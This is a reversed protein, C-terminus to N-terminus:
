DTVTAGVQEAGSMWQEIAQVTSLLTADQCLDLQAKDILGYAVCRQANLHQQQYREFAHSFLQKTRPLAAHFQHPYLRLVLAKSRHYPMLLHAAYRDVLPLAMVYQRFSPTMFPDREPLHGAPPIGDSPFIADWADAVAWSRHHKSHFVLSQQVWIRAWEEVPSRLRESLIAPAQITCLEPWNTAWYLWSSWRAPLLFAVTGLAETQLRRWGGGEVLDRLYATAERWKRSRLLPLTLYRVAGLLEDAGDGSLLVEAGSDMARDAIARNLRPMADMRPGGPHWCPAPLPPSANAVDEVVSFECRLHLVDILRQAVIASSQGRDDRINATIAILRRGENQCLEHTHLLVATSDLGGSLAVAVVPADGICDAVSKQFQPVLDDIQASAPPWPFSPRM